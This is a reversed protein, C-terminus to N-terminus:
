FRGSVLPDVARKMEGIKKYIAIMNDLLETQMNKIKDIDSRPVNEASAYKLLMANAEKKDAEKKNEDSETLSFGDLKDKEAKTLEDGWHGSILGVAESTKYFDDQYTINAIYREYRKKLQAFYALQTEASLGSLLAIVEYSVKSLKVTSISTVFVLGNQLNTKIGDSRFRYAYVYYDIRVVASHLLMVSYGEKEKEGSTGSGLVADLTGYILGKMGDLFRGGFMDEIVGEMKKSPGSSVDVSRESRLKCITSIPITLDGTNPTILKQRYADEKGSLIASLQSLEARMKDAEREQSEKAEDIKKSVTTGM